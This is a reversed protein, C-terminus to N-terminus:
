PQVERASALVARMANRLDNKSSPMYHRLSSGAARLIREISEDIFADSVVPASQEAIQGSEPISSRSM